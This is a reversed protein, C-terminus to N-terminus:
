LAEDGLTIARKVKAGAQPADHKFMVDELYIARGFVDRDATRAFTMVQGAFTLVIQAYDSDTQADVQYPLEAGHRDRLLVYGDNRYQLVDSPWEGQSNPWTLTSPFGSALM